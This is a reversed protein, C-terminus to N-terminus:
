SGMWRMQFGISTTSFNTGTRVSVGRSYAVKVSYASAVPLSLTVGLRSNNARVSPEGGEVQASGGNYWTGDAAVWLRPRFTYSGHLQLAFLPDQTRTLGGTYSDHNSTFLWAGFYADLDWPGKPVSVGVEPKFAWRNTGLNILRTGDYEGTPTAAMISAGFVTRRPARAFERPSMAPNGILNVSLKFRADALGARTIERAEEGVTGSAEGWAFPVAATVLGLKGFLGFTHGAAAVLQHIQAKADEIPLTPDLVIGGSSYVYVTGVFTVGKPSAAYSRPELEQARVAGPPAGWACVLGLILALVAPQIRLTYSV